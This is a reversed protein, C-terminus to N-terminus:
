QLTKRELLVYISDGMQTANGDVINFWPGSTMQVVDYDNYGQLREELEIGNSGYVVKFRPSSM